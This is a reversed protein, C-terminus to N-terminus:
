GDRRRSDRRSFRRPSRLNPRDHRRILSPIRPERITPGVGSWSTAPNDGGGAAVAVVAASSGGATAKIGAGAALCQIGAESGGSYSESASGGGSAAIVVNATSGSRTAKTGAGFGVVAAVTSAGSFVTKTGGGASAVTVTAQSGGTHSEAGGVSGGGSALVSVNADSGDSVAKTGLGSTITALDAEAGGPVAKAGAGGSLTLVNAVLGGNGHKIGDGAESVAGGATSGGSTAKVGAGVSSANIDTQAGAGTAKAGVGLAVANVDAQSGGSFNESAASTDATWRILSIQASNRTSPNGGAGVEVVEIEVNAPDTIVSSNFTGSVTQSTTSTVNTAAAIAQVLTGNEYLNIAITPTGSNSGKRAVVEVTQTASPTLPLVTDAIAWRSTYSANQNLVGAWTAPTDGIANDPNAFAGAIHSAAYLVEAM